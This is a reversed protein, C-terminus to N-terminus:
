GREPFPELARTSGGPSYARDLERFHALLREVGPTTEASWGSRARLVVAAAEEVPVRPFRSASLWNAFKM